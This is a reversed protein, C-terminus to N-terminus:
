NAGFGDHLKLYSLLIGHRERVGLRLPEPLDNGLLSDLVIIQRATLNKRRAELILLDRDQATGSLAVATAGLAWAFPNRSGLLEVAQEHPVLAGAQGVVEGLLGLAEELAPLETGTVKLPAAVGLPLVYVGLQHYTGGRVDRRLACLVYDGPKRNLLQRPRLLATNQSDRVLIKEGKGIRNRLEAKVLMEYETAAMDTTNPDATAPVLKRVEAIVICLDPDQLSLQGPYEAITRGRAGGAVATVICLALVPILYSFRLM